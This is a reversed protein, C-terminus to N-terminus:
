LLFDCGLIQSMNGGKVIQISENNTEVIFNTASGGGGPLPISSTQSLFGSM